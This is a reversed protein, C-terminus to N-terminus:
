LSVTRYFSRFQGHAFDAGENFIAERLAKISDPQLYFLIDIRHDIKLPSEGAELRQYTRYPINVADALEAQTM